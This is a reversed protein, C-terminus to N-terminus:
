KPNPKYVQAIQAHDERLGGFCDVLLVDSGSKNCTAATPARIDLHTKGMSNGNGHIESLGVGM